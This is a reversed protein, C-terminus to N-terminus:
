PHTQVFSDRSQARIWYAGLHPWRQLWHPPAAERSIMWALGPWLHTDALSLAEGLLWPGGRALRADLAGLNAALRARTDDTVSHRPDLMFVGAELSLARATARLQPDGPQLAPGDFAEDIYCAIVWSDALTFGDHWLLPSKRDPNHWAARPDANEVDFPLASFPVGKERAALRTRWFFPCQRLGHLELATDEPSM